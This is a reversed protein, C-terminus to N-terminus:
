FPSLWKLPFQIAQLNFLVLVGTVQPKLAGIKRGVCVSSVERAVLLLPVFEWEGIWNCSVLQIANAVKWPTAVGM